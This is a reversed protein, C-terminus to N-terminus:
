VQELETEENKNATHIFHLSLFYDVSIKGPGVLLIFYYIGLFMMPLYGPSDFTWMQSPLVAINTIIYWQAVIMLIIPPITMVRTCFGIMIFLSCAIEIIIALILTLDPSMGWISPFTDVCLDFNVAQRCGFQM